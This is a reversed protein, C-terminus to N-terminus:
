NRWLALRQWDVSFKMAELPANPHEALLGFLRERWHCHPSVVRLMHQLVVLVAYLRGNDPVQHPWALSRSPFRPRIALQRNWLRKHHACVNRIYTLAHLWSILFQADVGYAAAIRQRIKPELSQYLKSITGISLLETAMWVPLHPEENYKRRFHAAFTEKARLEETGLEAMFRAHDFGPAFNAPDAHGFAGHAHAIEFTVATRIAVEIREIADLVQLRLKRDFIYLGAIDDFKTGPRFADGDKFPLCYASLRYYSVNRLWHLARDPDHITLGRERLLSLQQDFSLAPKAYRM